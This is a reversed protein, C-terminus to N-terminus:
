LWHASLLDVFEKMLVGARANPTDSNGVWVFVEHKENIAVLATFGPMHGEKLYLVKDSNPRYKYFMYGYCSKITSYDCSEIKPSLRGLSSSALLERMLRAYGAASGGLGGTASIAQYDFSPELDDRYFDHYRYDPMVWGEHSPGDVFRVGYSEFDFSESIVDRFRRGTVESVIASLICYNLNSYRHEGDELVWPKQNYLESMRTPCWAADKEVFAKGAVGAQYSMLRGVTISNFSDSIGKSRKVPFIDTVSRDLELEGQDILSLIFASTIPKTVSGYQFLSEETVFPSSFLGGQWGSECHHLNGKSDIFASQSAPARLRWLGFGMIEPQWKPGNESCKTTWASVAATVPYFTRLVGKRDVTWYHFPIALLLSVFFILLFLIGVRTLSVRRM